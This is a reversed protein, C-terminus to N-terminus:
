VAVADRPTERRLATAVISELQALSNFTGKALAVGDANLAVAYPSGPVVAASWVAADAAEDFVRVSLLPDAALYTVAPELRRCIPCGESSFVALGLLTGPRLGVEGAWPQSEGVRPGEDPIELAGQGAVSLRLVGIERALALVVAALVAVGALSATLGVTLWRTYGGHAVPLWGAAVTAAVLALAASEIPTARRLRTAAGFCACPRGGRGAALAACGALAFAGFLGCAGAAAWRADALLAAGLALEVAVIAWLATRRVADPGIGYTTLAEASRERDRLKAAAAAVLVIALLSQVVTGM